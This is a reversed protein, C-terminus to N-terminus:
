ILETTWNKEQIMDDLKRYEKSLDDVKKQMQTVSVSSYTKIESKSYYKGTLSSANNLFSRLKSIKGKLCDRKALLDALTVDGCMTVNNTHNIRSILVELREYLSELENILELPEETPKEGEQVTANRNLRSSVDGIRM